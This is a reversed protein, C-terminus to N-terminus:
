IRDQLEKLLGEALKDLDQRIAELKTIIERDDLSKIGEYRTYDRKGVLSWVEHRRGDSYKIIARRGQDAVDIDTIRGERIDRLRNWVDLIMNWEDCCKDYYADLRKRLNQPVRGYKGTRILSSRVNGPVKDAPLPASFDPTGYRRDNCDKFESVNTRMMNVEEYLPSYIESGLLLQDNININVNGTTIGGSQNHSIVFTASPGPVEGNAILRKAVEDTPEGVSCVKAEHQQKMELLRAVTYTKPDADVIDHHIPCLLVLNDFGHREADMQTVDFRQGGKRGRIHCIRGTVKGSPDVLPNFCDPFVCRNGSLAFLRKITPISPSTVM